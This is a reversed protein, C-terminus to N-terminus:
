LCILEDIGELMHELIPKCKEKCSPYFRGHKWTESKPSLGWWFEGMAMPKLNNQFAFQLLKPAACDGAGSPPNKYGANKFIEILSRKKGTRNLFFYHEFLKNQLAISSERRESKLFELEDCHDASDPNLNLIENNISNLQEMGINLFSNETLADFVPPVFRGLQNVGALKGSFAAIYGVQNLETQVVLVGFMKGIVDGQGKESLGFNHNWHTQVKLYSQLDVVAIKCLAQCQSDTYGSSSAEISSHIPVFFNQLDRM